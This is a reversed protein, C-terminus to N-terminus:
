SYRFEGAERQRFQQYRCSEDSPWKSRTWPEYLRCSPPVTKGRSAMSSSDSRFGGWERTQRKEAVGSHDCDISGVIGGIGGSGGGGTGSWGGFGGSEQLAKDSGVEADVHDYVLSAEFEGRSRELGVPYREPLMM